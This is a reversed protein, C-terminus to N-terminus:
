VEPEVPNKSSEMWSRFHAQRFKLYYRIAQVFRKQKYNLKSMNYYTYYTYYTTHIGGVREAEMLYKRAKEFEETQLCSYGINNLMDNYEKDPFDYHEFFRIAEQFQGVLILATVKRRAAKYYDPKLELVENYADISEHHRSLYYLIDGKECWTIYEDQRLSLAYDVAVLAEEYMKLELLLLVKDTAAKFNRSKIEMYSNLEELSENLKKTKYFADARLRLATFNQPDLNISKDAFMLAQNYDNKNYSDIAQRLYEMSKRQENTREKLQRSIPYVLAWVELHNWLLFNYVIWDDDRPNTAYRITFGPGRHVNEEYPILLDKDWKTIWEEHEKNNAHPTLIMMGKNSEILRGRLIFELGRIIKENIAYLKEGPIRVMYKTRVGEKPTGRKLVNNIGENYLYPAYSTLTDNLFKMYRGAHKQKKPQMALGFAAPDNEDLCVSLRDFLEEEIAGLKKNCAECSPVTWKELNLPTSNPYWSYPPIHDETLEEFYNLCHICKQNKYKAM